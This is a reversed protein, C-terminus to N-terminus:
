LSAGINFTFDFSSKDATRSVLASRASFDLGMNIVPSINAFIGASGMIMPTTDDIYVDKESDNITLYRNSLGGTIKFSLPKKIEAKYGLKLDLEKLFMDESGSKTLGFNRFSTEGFWNESFLDVGLSIQMGNQYKQTTKDAIVMESFSNVYGLGAHIKVEEFLNKEPGREISKKKASIQKLLDDYSVEEYDSAHCVLTLPVIFMVVLLKSFLSNKM